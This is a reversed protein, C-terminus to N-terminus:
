KGDFEDDAQLKPDSATGLVARLKKEAQACEVAATPLTTSALTAHVLLARKSGRADLVAQARTAVDAAIGTGRAGRAGRPPPPPAVVRAMGDTAAADRDPADAANEDTKVQQPRRAVMRKALALWM